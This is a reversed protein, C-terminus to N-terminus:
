FKDNNRSNFFKDRLAIILNTKSNIKVVTFIVSSIMLVTMLIYKFNVNKVYTILFTSISLIVCIVFVKYFELSYKFGYKKLTIIKVGIAYVGYYILYCVGLGILGHFEYGYICFILLLLNFGIETFMYTKSDGKAILIYGMTWSVAKLLSAMILFTLFGVIPLFSKSLLLKIIFPAFILFFIIIPTILLVSMYAQQNVVEILKSKQNAISSLKPFYDKSMATFIVGVSANVIIFAANYFGVEEVGGRNTIFIQVLYVTVLTALSGLSLVFGLKVMTKGENIAEKTKIVEKKSHYEKSFFRSFLYTFVSTLVIVPVIGDIGFYYYLPIIIILSCFSSWLSAKALKKLKRLSQLIALNSVTLLNFFVALAIVMFAYTYTTDGFTLKSLWSSLLVTLLAALVGVMWSVKKLVAITRQQKKNTSSASIEKVASVDLGLKTFGLIVDLTANLVGLIGLGAPGILIAAFKSRAISIIISLFQVGSFLSTAKLIQKYSNQANNM